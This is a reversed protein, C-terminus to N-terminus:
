VLVGCGEFGGGTWEPPDFNISGRIGPQQLICCDEDVDEDTLQDADYRFVASISGSELYDLVLSDPTPGSVPIWYPWGTLVDASITVTVGLMELVYQNTFTVTITLEDGDCITSSSFETSILVSGDGMDPIWDTDPPPASDICEM